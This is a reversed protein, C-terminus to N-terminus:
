DAGVAAHKNMFEVYVRAHDDAVAELDEPPSVDLDRDSKLLVHCEAEPILRAANEGVLRPHTLDNGPVICTPIAIGNLAAETAGIVPLDADALFGRRWREFAEIFRGSDISLIKERNAPNAAIREAFHESDAVAQMGGAQAMEIYQGYYQQALREAAFRGGTVRWLLLGRVIEPHRLYTLLALRCGASTGGVFAPTAGLQELLEKLDDAWIVYEADDGELVVDSAGCNRRDHLLVRFGQAAVREALYRVGDLDRRGGPTLSVWPGSDGLVEYNINAGRVNAVPM